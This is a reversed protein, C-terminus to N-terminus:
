LVKWVLTLRIAQKLQVNMTIIKITEEVLEVAERIIPQLLITKMIMLLWHILIILYMKAPQVKAPPGSLFPINLYYRM